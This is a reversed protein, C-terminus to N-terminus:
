ARMLRIVLGAIAGAVAGMPTFVFAVAMMYGGEAQSIRVIEPLGAGIGFTVAGGLIFGALMWLITRM